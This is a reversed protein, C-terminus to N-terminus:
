KWGRLSECSCHTDGGRVRISVCFGSGADWMGWGADWMGWGQHSRSSSATTSCCPVHPLSAQWAKPCNWWQPQLSCCSCGLLWGRHVPTPAQRSHLLFRKTLIGLTHLGLNGPPLEPPLTADCAWGAERGQRDGACPSSSILSARCRVATFCDLRYTIMESSLIFTFPTILPTQLSILPRCDSRSWRKVPMTEVVSYLSPRIGKDMFVRAALWGFVFTYFFLWGVLFFFFLGSFYWSYM